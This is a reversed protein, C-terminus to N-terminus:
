RIPRITICHRRVLGEIRTALADVASGVVRAVSRVLLPDFRAADLENAYARALAVGDNAGPPAGRSVNALASGAAESLRSSVRSLYLGEFNSVARLTM